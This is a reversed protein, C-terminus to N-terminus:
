KEMELFKDLKEILTEWKANIAPIRKAMEALDGKLVGGQDVNKTCFGRLLPLQSRFSELDGRLENVYSGKREEYKEFWESTQFIYPALAGVGLCIQASDKTELGEGIEKIGSLGMWALYFHMQNLAKWQPSSSKEKATASQSFTLTCFMVILITKFVIKQFM